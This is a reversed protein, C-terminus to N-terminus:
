VNTTITTKLRQYNNEIVSLSSKVYIYTKNNTKTDNKKKKKPLLKPNVYSPARSIYTM